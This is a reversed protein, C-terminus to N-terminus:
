WGSRTAAISSREGPARLGLDGPADRLASRGLHLPGPHRSGRARSRAGGRGGGPLLRRYAGWANEYLNSLQPVVHLPKRLTAACRSRRRLVARLREADGVIWVESVEPVRQLTAVVHAVLPRGAIELYGKSEGYVAKAAGRDGATVVAPIKM